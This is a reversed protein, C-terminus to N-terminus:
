AAVVPCRWVGRRDRLPRDSVQYDIGSALTIRDGKAPAAVEWSRVTVVMAPRTVLTNGFRQEADVSATRVRVPKDIGPWVADEGFTVFAQDTLDRHYEAFSM